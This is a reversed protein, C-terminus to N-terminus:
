PKYNTKLWVKQWERKLVLLAMHEAIEVADNEKINRYSREPIDVLYMLNLFESFRELLLFYIKERLLAFFDEPSIHLPAELPFNAMHFDKNIQKILKSYLQVSAAYQLM